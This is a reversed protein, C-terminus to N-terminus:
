LQGSDAVGVLQGAGTLGLSEIGGGEWHDGRIVPKANSEADPFRFVSRRLWSRRFSNAPASVVGLALLLPRSDISVKAAACRGRAPPGSSPM